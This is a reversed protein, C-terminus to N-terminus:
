VFSVLVARKRLFITYNISKKSDSWFLVLNRNTNRAYLIVWTISVSHFCVSLATRACARVGVARVWRSISLPSTCMLKPAVRIRWGQLACTSIGNMHVQKVSPLSDEMVPSFQALLCAPGGNLRQRTASFGQFQWLACVCLVPGQTTPCWVIQEWTKPTESYYLGSLWFGRCTHAGNTRFLVDKNLWSIWIFENTCRDIQLGSQISNGLPKIV